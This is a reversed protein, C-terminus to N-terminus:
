SLVFITCLNQCNCKAEVILSRFFSALLSSKFPSYSDTKVLVNTFLAIRLAASITKTENATVVNHMSLIFM